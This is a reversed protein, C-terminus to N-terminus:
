EAKDTEESTEVPATKKKTAKVPEVPTEEVIPVVPKVDSVPVDVDPAPVTTNVLECAVGQWGCACKTKNMNIGNNEPLVREVTVDIEKAGCKPCYKM